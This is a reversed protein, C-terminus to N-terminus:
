QCTAIATLTVCLVGGDTTRNRFRSSKQSFHKHRRIAIHPNIYLHPPPPLCVTSPYASVALTDWIYQQLCWRLCALGINKFDFGWRFPKRTGCLRYLEYQNPAAPRIPACLPASYYWNAPVPMADVITSTSTAVPVFAKFCWKFSRSSRFLDTSPDDHDNYGPM